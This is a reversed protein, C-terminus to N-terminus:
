FFFLFSLMLFHLACNRSYMM